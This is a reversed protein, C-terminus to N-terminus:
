WSWWVGGDGCVCVLVCVLVCVCVCVCVGQRDPRWSCLLLLFPSPIKEPLVLITNLCFHFNFLYHLGSDPMDAISLSSRNTRTRTQWGTTHVCMCASCVFTCAHFCVYIQCFNHVEICVCMSTYICTHKCLYTCAYVFLHMFVYHMRTHTRTCICSSFCSEPLM